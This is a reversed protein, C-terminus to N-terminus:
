ERTRGLKELVRQVRERAERVANKWVETAALPIAHNFLKQVEEHSTSERTLPDGAPTDPGRVESDAHKHFHLDDSELTM